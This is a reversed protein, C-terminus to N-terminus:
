SNGVTTFMLGIQQLAVAIFLCSGAAIVSVAIRGRKRGPPVDAKKERKKRWVVLPLLSLSGLMFRITNYTFPGTYEMGSRQAVFGFGWIAATLLLLLDSRLARKNM